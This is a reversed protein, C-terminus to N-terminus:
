GIAMVMVGTVMIVAGLLRERWGKEGFIWVGFGVSFLSSLRKVAIVQTVPAIGVAIMQSGVAIGNAIGAVLLLKWHKRIDLLSVRQTARNGFLLMPLIGLAIYGFLVIAWFIPSSNKVGIKDFTSTISWIFAVMIMMRSGKNMVMAKLPAFYDASDSRLNLVYSGMVVLFVGVGDWITPVEQVILPSTVLLFLPTLASLPTILSLDSIQIAKVYLSYAVVNLTGGVFIATWFDPGLTPVGTILLSPLLVLAAISMTVCAVLSSDLTKLSKKSFVDKLSEFFATLISLILWTM